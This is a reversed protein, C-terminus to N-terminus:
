HPTYHLSSNPKTAQIFLQWGINKDHPIDTIDASTVRLQHLIIITVSPLHMEVCGAVSKSGRSYIDCSM